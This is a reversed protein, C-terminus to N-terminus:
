KTNDQALAVFGVQSWGAREGMNAVLYDYLARAPTEDHWQDDHWQDDHWAENRWDQAAFLQPLPSKATRKGGSGDGSTFTDIVVRDAHELLLDGFSTIGSFPLCPSVAIQVQLGAAKAKRVTELRRAIAPCRPTLAARVDDRDTELTMSLWCAKDLAALREFDDEVLPSRTQVMLLKPPFCVMVDLCRRTLRWTREQGQYPDTSSSMFISTSSLKGRAQLRALENKLHVDIGTRPHVYEGWDQQPQHFRHVPSGAVYCYACGFRCGIYPQLSHTFGTLFGGTKTLAAAAPRPHHAQADDTSGHQTSGHQTSDHQTLNHQTSHQSRARGGPMTASEAPPHALMATNYRASRALSWGANQRCDNNFARWSLPLWAWFHWCVCGQLRLSPSSFHVSATPDCPLSAGVKQQKPEPTGDEPQLVELLMEERRCVIEGTPSIQLKCVPFM